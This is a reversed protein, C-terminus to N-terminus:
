LVSEGLTNDHTYFGAIGFSFAGVLLPSRFSFNLDFNRQESGSSTM